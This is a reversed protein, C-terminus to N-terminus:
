DPEQWGNQSEIQWVQVACPQMSLQPGHWRHTPPVQWVRHLGSAHSSQRPLVQWYRHPGASAHM